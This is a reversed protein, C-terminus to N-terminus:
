LALLTWYDFSSRSVILFLSAIIKILLRLKGSYRSIRQTRSTFVRSYWLNWRLVLIQITFLWLIFRLGHNCNWLFDNLFLCSLLLHVAWLSLHTVFDELLWNAASWSVFDDVHIHEATLLVIAIRWVFCDWSKAGIVCSCVFSICVRSLVFDECSMSLVFRNVTPWWKFLYNVFLIHVVRVIFKRLPVTLYARFSSVVLHIMSIVTSEFFMISAAQLFDTSSWM